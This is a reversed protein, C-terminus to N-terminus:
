SFVDFPIFRGALKIRNAYSSFIPRRRRKNLCNLEEELIEYAIQSVQSERNWMHNNILDAKDKSAERLSKQSYRKMMQYFQNISKGDVTLDAVSNNGRKVIFVEDIEEKSKLSNGKLFAVIMPFMLATEIPVPEDWTACIVSLLDIAREIQRIELDFRKCVESMYMAEDIDISIRKKDEEMTSTSLLYKVMELREPAALMYSRDFFRALYHRSDFASGYVAKISHALQTTDTALIFVVNKVEFLHKIRELMEIAYTPRCRDLEDVLIFFPPTHTKATLAEVAKGLSTQFSDLSLKAENFQALKREAFKDINAEAIKIVEGTADDVINEFEVKGSVLNKATQAIEGAAEGVVYTTARKAIGKATLLSLKGVNRRFEKGAAKVRTKLSSDTSKFKTLFQDFEAVVATLPDDSFDDRWADIMIAPHGAEKLDDFLGKMFFTKGEGWTADVNLVYSGTKGREIREAVRQQLFRIIYESEEARGLKDDNKIWYSM